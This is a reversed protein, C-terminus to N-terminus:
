LMPAFRIAAKQCEGGVALKSAGFGVCAGVIFRGNDDLKDYNYCISGFVPRVMPEVAEKASGWLGGDHSYRRGSQAEVVASEAAVLVIWLIFSLFAFHVVFPHSLRNTSRMMTLLSTVRDKTSM